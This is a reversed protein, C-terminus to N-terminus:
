NVLQLFEENGRLSDLNYDNKLFLSIQGGSNVAKKLSGVANEREGLALQVLAIEYYFKEADKGASIKKLLEAANKDDGKKALVRSLAIAADSNKDRFRLIERLLKEAEDLDNKQEFSQALHLKATEDDPYLELVRRSYLNSEEPRRAINLLQALGINTARAQPDLNQATKMEEVAKELNGEFAYFWAIRQHAAVNNPKIEIARKLLNFREIPKNEGLNVTALASMAESCNPNIELAKEAAIKAKQLIQERPESNMEYYVILSYTDALYAYGLAFDPDLSVAKQFYEAAKKLGDATRLNWHYLGMSYAQHAEINETYHEEDGTPLGSKLHLSLEKAIRESISDQLLFVNILKEDFKDSWLFAQAQVDYLQVMVRILDGDRQITGALIADVGLSKGVDALDEIDREAYRIIASTPLVDLDRVKGLKTILVDAMGLGLKEDKQEGIQKFPLIAISKIGTPPAAPPSNNGRLYFYLGIIVALIFLAVLIIQGIFKVPVVRKTDINESVLAPKIAEFAETEFFNDPATETREPQASIESVTAATEEELSIEEVEAVFRYGNKPITEIYIKGNQQLAKRLMYIHQTLTAEEVFCDDWIKNLLEEKKLMRDRKEILVYLIEFSKHTLQVPSGNKLLRCNVVDLRFDGFDYFVVKEDSM